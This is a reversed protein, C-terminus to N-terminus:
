VTLKAEELWFAESSPFLRRRHGSRHLPGNELQDHRLLPRDRRPGYDHLLGHLLHRSGSGAYLHRFHSFPNDNSQLIPCSIKLLDDPYRQRCFSCRRFFRGFSADPSPRGLWPSRRPRMSNFIKKPTSFLVSFSVTGIFAAILQFLVEPM